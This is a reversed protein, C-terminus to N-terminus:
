VCVSLFLTMNKETNDKKGPNSFLGRPFVVNFSNLLLMNDLYLLVNTSIDLSSMWLCRAVIRYVGEFYVFMELSYWPHLLKVSAARSFDGSSWCALLPSLLALRTKQAKERKTGLARLRADNRPEPFFLLIFEWSLLGFLWLMGEGARSSPLLSLFYGDWARNPLQLLLYPPRLVVFSWVSSGLLRRSAKSLWVPGRAPSPEDHVEAPSWQGATDRPSLERGWDGEGRVEGGMEWALGLCFVEEM